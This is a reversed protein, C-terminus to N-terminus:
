VSIEPMDGASDAAVKSLGSTAYNYAVAGIAGSGVVAAATSGAIVATEDTEDDSLTSNAPDFFLTPTPAPTLVTPAMSPSLTPSDYGYLETEVDHGTSGLTSNAGISSSALWLSEDFASSGFASVLESSLQLYADIKSKM